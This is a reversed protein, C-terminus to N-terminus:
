PICLWQGAFIWNPNPLNNATAIAWITTRYRWAINYLTDGYQVLYVARCLPPPPPVSGFQRACVPGSAIQFPVDPIALRQGIWLLYPNFLRNENAIAWPSVSYARAICFLNEGTRVYHYGLISSGRTCMVQGDTSVVPLVRGDSDVLKAQEFHLPSTGEKLCRFTLRVIDGNGSGPPTPPLQTVAYEMVGNNCSRKAVIQPSPIAGAELQACLLVTPDFTVRLDVGWLNTAGEIRVTSSGTYNLRLSLSLPVIRLSATNPSPTPTPSPPLTPTVDSPVTPSPTNSIQPTPTPTASLQATPTPTLSPPTTATATLTPTPTPTPTISQAIAITGNQTTAPIRTGGPDSLIVSTFNLASTGVARGMLTIKLFIGSGSVPPHPPLQAIAYDVHGGAINSQAVFDPSPFGGADIKQVQVLNPDYTLHIEAGALNSVNQIWVNVVTTAGINITSTLPDITVVTGGQASVRAAFSLSYLAAVGLFFVGLSWRAAFHARHLRTRWLQDSQGRM